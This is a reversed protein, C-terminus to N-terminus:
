CIQKTKKKKLKQKNPNKKLYFQPFKILAVSPFPLHCTSNGIYWAFFSYSVKQEQILLFIM